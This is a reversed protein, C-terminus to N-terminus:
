KNEIQDGFCSDLKIMQDPLGHKRTQISLKARKPRATMTIPSLPPPEGYCRLKEIRSKISKCNESKNLSNSLDVSDNKEDHVIKSGDFTTEVSTVTTKGKHNSSKLPTSTAVPIPM